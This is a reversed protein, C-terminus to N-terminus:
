SMLAASSVPSKLASVFVNEHLLTVLSLLVSPFIFSVSPLPPPVNRASSGTNPKSSLALAFCCFCVFTELVEFSTKKCLDVREKEKIRRNM